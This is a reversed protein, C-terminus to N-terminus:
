KRTCIYIYIYFMNLSEIRDCASRTSDYLIQLYTKILYTLRFLELM